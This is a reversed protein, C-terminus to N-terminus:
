GLHLVKRHNGDTGGCSKILLTQHSNVVTMGGHVECGRSIAGGKKAGDSTSFKKKKTCPCKNGNRMLMKNRIAHYSGNKAELTARLKSGEKLDPGRDGHSRRYCSPRPSHPPRRVTGSSSLISEKSETQVRRSASIIDACFRAQLWTAASYGVEGKKNNDSLKQLLRAESFRAPSIQTYVTSMDESNPQFPPSQPDSRRM